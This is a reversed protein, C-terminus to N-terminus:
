PTGGRSAWAAIWEVVRPIAAYLVVGVTVWIVATIIVGARGEAEVGLKGAGLKFKNSEAPKGDRAADCSQIHISLGEQIMERVESRVPIEGLRKEIKAIGDIIDATAQGQVVPNGADGNRLKDRNTMNCM